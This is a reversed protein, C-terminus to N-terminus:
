PQGCIPCYFENTTEHALSGVVWAQIHLGIEGCRNCIGPGKQVSIELKIEKVTAM